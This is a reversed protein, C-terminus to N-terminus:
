YNGATAIMRFGIENVHSNSKFWIRLKNNDSLIPSPIKKGCLKSGYDSFDGPGSGEIDGSGSGEVDGSGSGERDGSGSEEETSCISPPRIGSGGFDNATSNSGSGEFVGNFTVTRGGVFAFWDYNCSKATELNFDQFQLLVRNHEPFQIILSCNSNAGYDNPYNPSTITTGIESVIPIFHETTNDSSNSPQGCLEFVETFKM